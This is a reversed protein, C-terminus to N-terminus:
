VRAGCHPTQPTLKMRSVQDCSLSRVSRGGAAWAVGASDYEFRILDGNTVPVDLAGNEYSAGAGGSNDDEGREDRFSTRFPV